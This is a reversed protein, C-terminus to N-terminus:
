RKRKGYRMPAPQEAIHIRIRGNEGVVTERITLGRLIPHDVLVSIDRGNAALIVTESLALRTILLRGSNWTITKSLRVRGLLVGEIIGLTEIGKPLEQDIGSVPVMKGKFGSLTHILDELGDQDLTGLMRALVPDIMIGSEAECKELKAKRKEQVRMVKEVPRLDPDHGPFAAISVEQFNMQLDHGLAAYKLAVWVNRVPHKEKEVDDPEFTVSVVEGDMVTFGQLDHALLQAQRVAICKAYEIDVSHRGLLHLQRAIQSAIDEIQSTPAHRPDECNLKWKPFHWHRGAIPIWISHVYAYGSYNSFELEMEEHLFLANAYSADYDNELALLNHVANGLRGRWGHDEPRHGPRWIGGYLGSVEGITRGGYDLDHTHMRANSLIERALPTVGIIGPGKYSAGLATEIVDMCEVIAEDTALRTLERHFDQENQPQSPAQWAAAAACMAVARQRPVLYGLCTKSAGPLRSCREEVEAIARHHFTWTTM